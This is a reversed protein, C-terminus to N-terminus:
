DRGQVLTTARFRKDRHLRIEGGNYSHAPLTIDLKGNRHSVNEPKFEGRGLPHDRAIWATMDWFGFNEIRPARGSGGRGRRALASSELEEPGVLGGEEACGALTVLTIMLFWSPIYRSPAFM